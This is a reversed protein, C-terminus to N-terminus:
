SSCRVCRLFPHRFVLAKPDYGSQLTVNGSNNTLDTEQMPVPQVLGRFQVADVDEHGIGAFPDFADRGNRM